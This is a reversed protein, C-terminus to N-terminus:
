EKRTMLEKFAKAADDLNKIKKDGLVPSAIKTSSINPAKYKGDRYDKIIADAFKQAAKVVNKVATKAVKKNILDAKTLSNTPNDPGLYGKVFEKMADPVDEQDVAAIVETDFFSIANATNRADKQMAEEQVKTLKLHKNENELERMRDDPDMGDIREADDKAAWYNNYGDLTNAKKYIAQLDKPTLNGLVEEFEEQHALANTLDGMSDFGHDDLMENLDKEATRAAIWKPHKDFPLKDDGPKAGTGNGDDPGAGSGTGDNVDVQTDDIIENM